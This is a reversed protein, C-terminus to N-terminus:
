LSRTDNDRHRYRIALRLVFWSRSKTGDLVVAVDDQPLTNVALASRTPDLRVANTIDALLREVADQPDETRPVYCWLAVEMANAQLPLPGPASTQQPAQMEIWCGGDRTDMKRAVQEVSTQFPGAWVYWYDDAVLVGTFTLTLTAGLGAAGLNIATGSTVVAAVPGDDMTGVDDEDQHTWLDSQATPTDDTVTVTATGSAGGTVVTAKYRRTVTGTYAGGAAYGVDVSDNAARGESRVSQVLLLSAELNDLIQQRISRGTPASQEGLSRGSLGLLLISM